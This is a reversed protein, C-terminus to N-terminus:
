FRGPQCISEKSRRELQWIVEDQSFMVSSTEIRGPNQRAIDYCSIHFCDLYGVKWCWSSRSSPSIYFHGPALIDMFLLKVARKPTVQQFNSKVCERLADRLRSCLGQFTHKPLLLFSHPDFPFWVSFLLFVLSPASTVPRFEAKLERKAKSEPHRQPVYWAPM